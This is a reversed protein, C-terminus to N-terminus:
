QKGRADLQAIPAKAGVARTICRTSKRNALTVPNISPADLSSGGVVLAAGNIFDAAKRGVVPNGAFERRLDREAALRALLASWELTRLGEADNAAADACEPVHWSSPNMEM